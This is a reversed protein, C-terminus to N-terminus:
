TTKPQPNVEFLRYGVIMIGAGIVCMLSCLGFFAFAGLHEFVWGFASGTLLIGISPVTVQLIAQNTAVNQPHSIASVVAFSSLHLSPWMLGRFLILLALVVLSETAGMLFIFIAMGLIGFIYGQRFKVRPLISDMLVFFPIEAGALLAAWMGIDSTAIGLNQTFHVFIFVFSNQIGMMAFFQSALMVYFGKRRPVSEFVSQTDKIKPKAPFITAVQISIAAFLAGIWFLLPFGGVGFLQGALLSASAFGLAAFSRIQGLIAKSRNAILSMTLQMGLTMSPSVTVHVLLIAGIIIFETHSTAFIVNAIVYGLLYMMFLRRHLMRKDAFQNLIPTLVLALVAGISALTGILTASFGIDVLYLNIYPSVMGVAALTLFQLSALRITGSHHQVITLHKNM